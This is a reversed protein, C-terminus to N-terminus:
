NKVVREVIFDIAKALRSEGERRLAACEAETERLMADRCEQARQEAQALLDKEQQAAEERVQRLLAGGAARADQRIQRTQAEAAAKERRMQEEKEAIRTIAEMSM